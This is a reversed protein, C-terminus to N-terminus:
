KLMRSNSNLELFIKQRGGVLSSYHEVGLDPILFYSTSDRDTYTDFVHILRMVMARM